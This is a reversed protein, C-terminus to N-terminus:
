YTRVGGMISNATFYKTYTGDANFTFAFAYELGNGMYTAPNQSWYETLSFYGYMWNTALEGPVDTRPSDPPALTDDVSKECATTAFIVAVIMFFFIKKM